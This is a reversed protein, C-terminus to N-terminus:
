YRNAELHNIKRRWQYRLIFLMLHYSLLQIIFKPFHLIFSLATLQRGRVTFAWVWDWALERPIETACLPLLAPKEGTVIM